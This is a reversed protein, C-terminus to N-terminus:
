VISIKEFCCFFKASFLLFCSVNVGKEHGELTFNADTSGLSWVKITRDLSASAFVNPDKPNFCVQMVYHSHGEFTRTCQWGKEWDWLKILMDDSSSILFPQSPHIAVSRIYDQHAEWAHVKDLTNYNYIRLQSNFLPLDIDIALCVLCEFRVHMDDCGAVIWSKRAIFAGCRVPLPSAEFSKVLAKTMYNWIFIKSHCIMDVVFFVFVLIVNGMM